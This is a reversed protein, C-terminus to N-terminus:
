PGPNPDTNDAITQLLANATATDQAIQGTDTAISQLRAYIAKLIAIATGSGTGTWAADGPSGVSESFNTVEVESVGGGGGIGELLEIVRENWTSM